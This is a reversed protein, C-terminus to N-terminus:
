RRSLAAQVASPNNELYALLAASNKRIHAPIETPPGGRTTTAAVHRASERRAATEQARRAEEAKALRRGKIIEYAEPTRVRLGDKNVDTLYADVEAKFAADKMEPHTDVFELYRRELETREAAQTVPKFRRELGEAIGRQIRAEIGEPTMADPLEGVPKELVKKIEPDNALAAFQERDRALDLRAKEIAAERAKIAAEKEELAKAHTEADRQRLALADRLAQRAPGPLAKLADATWEAMPVAPDGADDAFASEAVKWFDGPAPKAVEASGPAPEAPPQETDIENVDLVEPNTADTEM